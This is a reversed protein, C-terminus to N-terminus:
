ITIKKLPESRVHKLLNINLVKIFVSDAFCRAPVGRFTNFRFPKNRTISTESESSARLRRITSRKESVQPELLIIYINDLRNFYRVLLM